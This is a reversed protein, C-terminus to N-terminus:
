ISNREAKLIDAHSRAPVQDQVTEVQPDFGSAVDGDDPRRAGAFRREDTQQETPMARGGPAHRNIAGLQRALPQLPQPALRGPDIRRNLEPVTREDVIQSVAMETASHPN